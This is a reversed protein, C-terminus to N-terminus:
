PCAPPRIELHIGDANVEVEGQHIRHRGTRSETDHSSLFLRPLPCCPRAVLVQLSWSRRNIVGDQRLLADHGFDFLTTQLTFRPSARPM